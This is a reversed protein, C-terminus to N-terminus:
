RKDIRGSLSRAASAESQGFLVGCQAHYALVIAVQKKDTEPQVSAFVMDFQVQTLVLSAGLKLEALRDALDQVTLGDQYCWVAFWCSM